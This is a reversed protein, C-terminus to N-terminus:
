QPLCLSTCRIAMDLLLSLSPCKGGKNTWPQSITQEFMHGNPTIVTTTLNSNLSKKSQLKLGNPLYGLYPQLLLFTLLTNQMM